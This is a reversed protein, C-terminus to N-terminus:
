LKARSILERYQNIADRELQGVDVEVYNDKVYKLFRRLADDLPQATKPLRESLEGQQVSTPIDQPMRFFLELENRSPDMDDAFAVSRAWAQHVASILRGLESNNLHYNSEHLLSDLLTFFDIGEITLRGYGVRDIFTDLVSPPTCGLVRQLLELDRNRRVKAASKTETGHPQRPPMSTSTVYTLVFNAMYVASLEAAYQHYSDDKDPDAYDSVAKVVLSHTTPFDAAARYFPYGEMEIAWATRVPQQIEEFPRDARVASGSAMPKLYVKPEAPDTYPFHRLLNKRKVKAKDRLSLNETLTPNPGEKMESVITKWMPAFKNLEDQDLNHVRPTNEDLLANLLWDRQQRKSIPRHLKLLSGLTALDPQFNAAFQRTDEDPGRTELDFLHKPRDDSGSVFKGGDSKFARTAVIIDGLAVHRPDGACIGCMGAFRPRFEELVASTHLNMEEPGNAAPWSVHVSLTEQRSNTIAAAHYQRHRRSFRPEFSTKFIQSLVKIVAQGEERMACILCVDYRMPQRPTPSDPVKLVDSRRKVLTSM